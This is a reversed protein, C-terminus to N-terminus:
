RLLMEREAVSLDMLAQMVVPSANAGNDGSAPQHADDPTVSRRHLRRQQSHIRNRLIGFLFAGLSGLSPDFRDLDRLLALLSEGVVDEALSRDGGLRPAAFRVAPRWTARFFREWAFREGRRLAQWLNREEDDSM